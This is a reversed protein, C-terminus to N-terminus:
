DDNNQGPNLTPPPEIGMAEAIEAIAHAYYKPSTCREVTQKSTNLHDAIQRRTMGIEDLMVCRAPFSLQEMLESVLETAEPQQPEDDVPNFYDIASITRPRDAGNRNRSGHRRQLDCAANRMCHNLFARPSGKASKFLRISAWARIRLEQCADDFEMCTVRRAVRRIIPEAETLMEM